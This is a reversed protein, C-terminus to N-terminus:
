YWQPHIFYYEPITKKTPHFFSSSNKEWRIRKDSEPRPNTVRWTSTLLRRSRDENKTQEVPIEKRRNVENAKGKEEKDGISQLIEDLNKLSRNGHTKKETRHLSELFSFVVRRELISIIKRQTIKRDISDFRISLSVVKSRIIKLGFNLPNKQHFKKNSNM